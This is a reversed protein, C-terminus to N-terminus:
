NGSVARLLDQQAAPTTDLLGPLAALAQAAARHVAVYSVAAGAVEGAREQQRAVAADAAVAEAQETAVAVLVVMPGAAVLALTVALRTRLSTPDWRLWRPHPFIAVLVATGTVLQYTIAGWTQAPFMSAAYAFALAAFLAYVARAAIPPLPPGLQTYLLALGLVLSASAYWPLYSAFGPDPLSTGSQSLVLRLLGNVCQVLAVLVIFLDAQREDPRDTPPPLLPAALTGLALVANSIAGAWAGAAGASYSLVLVAASALTHALVTLLRGPRIVAAAILAFGGLVALPGIWLRHLLVPVFGPASYQQS